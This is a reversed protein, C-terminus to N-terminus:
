KVYQTPKGEDWPRYALSFLLRDPISPHNYAWFVLFQNPYPYDFSKEGLKQFAVAAVQSSDPVLGHIVELGYVDAQHEIHRSFTSGIPTGLFALGTVILLLLPLSAWDAMERIGLREGWLSIAAKAIRYGIYFAIFLMASLFLIGKWIHGLVYHGMEHGFVFLIEDTTMDHETTDWVVVRKTAGMGTVYANYDTVKESAKMEYMREPPIDLGGRKTVGQIAQVLAPNTKQLSEFKNFIPDLIVPAIFTVFVVIPISALWFYFWWRRPSVRIILYLLWIVPSFIAFQVLQSKTWDWFWSGWGQVSIGYELYTKHGYIDFPLNLASLIFLLPPVVLFAQVFRLRTVSEAWNRFRSGIRGRVVFLLVLFGYITEVIMLVVQTTYLTKAKALKDPPLSYHTVTQGASAQPHDSPAATQAVAACTLLLGLCVLISALRM